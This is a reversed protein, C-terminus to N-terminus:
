LVTKAGFFVFQKSSDRFTQIRQVFSVFNDVWEEKREHFQIIEENMKIPDIHNPAILSLCLTQEGQNNVHNLRGKEGRRRTAHM